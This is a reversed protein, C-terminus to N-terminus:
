QMPAPALERDDASPLDEGSSAPQDPATNATSGARRKAIEALVSDIRAREEDTGDLYGVAKVELMPLAERTYRAQSAQVFDNIVKELFTEVTLRAGEIHQNTIELEIADRQSRTMKSTDITIV